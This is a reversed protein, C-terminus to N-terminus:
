FNGDGLYLKFYPHVIFSRNWVSFKGDYIEMFVLLLEM